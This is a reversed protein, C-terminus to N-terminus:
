LTETTRTIWASVFSIDRPIVELGHFQIAGAVACRAPNNAGHSQAVTVELTELTGPPVNFPIVHEGSTLDFTQALEPRGGSIGVGGSGEACLNVARSAVEFGTGRCSGFSQPQVLSITFSCPADGERDIRRIRFVAHSFFVNLTM